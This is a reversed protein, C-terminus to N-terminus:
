KKIFCELSIESFWGWSGFIGSGIQWSHEPKVVLNSPVWVESLIASTNNQLLHEFQNMVTYSLKISLDNNVSYNSSFRPECVLYQKNSYFGIGRMGINVGFKKNIQYDDEFFIITEYNNRLTLPTILTDINYQNDNDKVKRTFTGPNILLQSVSIGTKIKHNEFITLDFDSKLTEKKLKSSNNTQKNFYWEQNGPYIIEEFGTIYESYLFAISSFVKPSIIYNYGFTATLSHQKNHGINKYSDSLDISKQIDQGTFINFFIKNNDAFNHNIKFNLDFCRNTAFSLEKEKLIESEKNKIAQYKIIQPLVFLDLYTIRTAILFSTSQNKIPGELLLGLNTIGLTFKGSLKNCNGDRTNIELVSGIRGGYRAPFGGKYINIDKIVNTNFMSVIAGM